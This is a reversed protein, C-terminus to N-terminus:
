PMHRSKDETFFIDKSEVHINPIGNCNSVSPSSPHFVSFIGVIPLFKILLNALVHTDNYLQLLYTSFVNLTLLVYRQRVVRVFMKTFDQPAHQISADCRCTM